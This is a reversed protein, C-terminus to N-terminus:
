DQSTCARARKGLTSTDWKEIMEDFDSNPGNWLWDDVSGVEVTDVLKALIRFLEADARGERLVTALKEAGRVKVGDAIWTAHDLPISM